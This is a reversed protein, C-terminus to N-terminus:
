AGSKPTARRLAAVTQNPSVSLHICAAQDLASQGRGDGERSEERDARFRARVSGTSAREGVADLVDDIQLEVVYLELSIVRVNRRIQLLNRRKEIEHLGVASQKRVM